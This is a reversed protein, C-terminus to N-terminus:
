RIIGSQVYIYFLCLYLSLQKRYFDLYIIFNVVEFTVDFKNILELIISM